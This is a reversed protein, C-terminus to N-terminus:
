NHIGDKVCQIYISTLKSTKNLFPVSCKNKEVNVFDNYCQQMTKDGCIQVIQSNSLSDWKASIAQLCKNLKDREFKVAIEYAHKCGVPIRALKAKSFISSFMKSIAVKKVAKKAAVIKSVEMNKVVIFKLKSRDSARSNSEGFTLSTLLLTLTIFTFINKM